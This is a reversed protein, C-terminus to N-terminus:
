LLWESSSFLWAFGVSFHAATDITPTKLKWTNFLKNSCLDGCQSSTIFLCQDYVPKWMSKKMHDEASNSKKEGKREWTKVRKRKTEEKLMERIWDMAMNTWRQCVLYILKWLCFVTHAKKRKKKKCIKGGRSSLKSTNSCWVHNMRLIVHVIQWSNVTLVKWEGEHNFSTLPLLRRRLSHIWENRARKIRIHVSIHHM